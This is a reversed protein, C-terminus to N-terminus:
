LKGSSFLGSYQAKFMADLETTSLMSKSNYSVSLTLMAGLDVAKIYYGGWHEFFDFFPQAKDNSFAAPLADRDAVFDPDLMAQAVSSSALSFNGFRSLNRAQMFQATALKDTKATFNVGVEASFAGIGTEVKASRALSDLFHEQSGSSIVEIEASPSESYLCYKPVSYQEGLISVTHYDTDSNAAFLPQIASKVDFELFVNISQGVYTSTAQVPSRLATRVKDMSVEGAVSGCSDVGSAM